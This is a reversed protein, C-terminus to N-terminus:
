YMEDINLRPGSDRLRQDSDRKPEIYKFSNMVVNQECISKVEDPSEKVGFPNESGGVYINTYGRGDEMIGDVRDANIFVKSSGNLTLTVFNM